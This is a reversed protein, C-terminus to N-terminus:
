KSGFSLVLSIHGEVGGGASATEIVMCKKLKIIVPHLAANRPLNHDIFRKIAAFGGGQLDVAVPESGNKGPHKAPLLWAVATRNEREDVVDSIYFERPTFSLPEDHLVIEEPKQPVTKYGSFIVAVCILTCCILGKWEVIHKRMVEM